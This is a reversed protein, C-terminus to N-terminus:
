EIGFGRKRLSSSSRQRLRIAVPDAAVAQLLLLSTLLTLM